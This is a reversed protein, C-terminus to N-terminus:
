FYTLKGSSLTSTILAIFTLLALLHGKMPARSLPMILAGKKCIQFKSFVVLYLLVSYCVWKKRFVSFKETPTPHSVSKKIILVLM